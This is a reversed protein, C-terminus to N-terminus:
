ASISGVMFCSIISRSLIPSFSLEVIVRGSYWTVPQAQEQAPAETNAWMRVIRHLIGGLPRRRVGLHGKMRDRASSVPADRMPVSSVAPVWLLRALPIGGRCWLIIAHEGTLCNVLKPFPGGKSICCPRNM